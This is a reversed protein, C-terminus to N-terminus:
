CSLATNDTGTMRLFVAVFFSEGQPRAEAYPIAVGPLVFHLVIVASQYGCIQDFEKVGRGPVQSQFERRIFDVAAKDEPSKAFLAAEARVTDEHTVSEL